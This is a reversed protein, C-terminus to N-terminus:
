RFMGGTAEHMAEECFAALDKDKSEFTNAVANADFVLVVETGIKEAEVKAKFADIDDQIGNFFSFNYTITITAKAM